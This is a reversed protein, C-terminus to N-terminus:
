IHKWRKMEILPKVYGPTISFIKAIEHTSYVGANYLQRIALVDNETLKSSFNCLEGKHKGHWDCGCSNSKFENGNNRRIKKGCKCTLELVIHKDIIGIVKTVKLNKYTKGIKKKARELFRNKRKCGCSPYQGNYKRLNVECIKGCICKVEWRWAKVRKILTMGQIVVGPSYINTKFGHRKCQGCHLCNQYFNNLTRTSKYGCKCQCIYRVKKREYDYGLVTWENIKDGIKHKLRNPKRHFNM